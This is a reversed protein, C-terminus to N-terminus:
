GLPEPIIGIRQYWAAAQVFVVVPRLNRSETQRRSQREQESCRVCRHKYQSAWARGRGTEQLSKLDAANHGVLACLKASRHHTNATLIRLTREAALSRMMGRQERRGPQVLPNPLREFAAFGAVFAKFLCERPLLPIHNGPQFPRSGCIQLAIMNLNIMRQAAELPM